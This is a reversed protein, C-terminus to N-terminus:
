HMHRGMGLRMGGGELILDGELHTLLQDTFKARRRWEEVVSYLERKQNM